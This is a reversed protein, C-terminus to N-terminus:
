PRGARLTWRACCSRTRRQELYRSAAAPPLWRGEPAPLTGHATRGGQTTEVAVGESGFRYRVLVPESGFRQDVSMEVPEGSETEVFRTTIAISVPTTGRRIAVEMRTTTVIRGDASTQLVHMWGARQGDIEVTYWRDHDAGRVTAALALFLALALRVLAHAPTPM